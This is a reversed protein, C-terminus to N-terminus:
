IEGNKKAQLYEELIAVVESSEPSSMLSGEHKMRYLLTDRYGCNKLFQYVQFLAYHDTEAKKVLRKLMNMDQITKMRFEEITRKLRLADEECMLLKQAWVQCYKSSGTQSLQFGDNTKTVTVRALSSHQNNTGSVAQSMNPSPESSGTVSDATDQLIPGFSCADLFRKFYVQAEEQVDVFELQGDLLGLQLLVSIHKNMWKKCYIIYEVAKTPWDNLKEKLSDECQSSTKVAKLLPVLSCCFQQLDSHLLDLTVDGPSILCTVYVDDDWSVYEYDGGGDPLVSSEVSSKLIQYYCAAQKSVSDTGFTLFGLKGEEDLIHDKDLRKLLYCRVDTEKEASLNTAVLSLNIGQKEEKEQTWGESKNEFQCEEESSASVSHHRSSKLMYVAYCNTRGNEGEAISLMNKDSTHNDETTITM